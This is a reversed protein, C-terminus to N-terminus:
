LAIRYTNGSGDVLVIASADPLISRLKLDLEPNVMSGENFFVSGIFIGKPNDSLTMPLSKLRGLYDEMSQGELSDALEKSGANSSEEQQKPQAVQRVLGPDPLEAIPEIKLGLPDFLYQLLALIAVVIVVPLLLILLRKKGRKAPQATKQAVPEVSEEEAAEVPVTEEKGTEEEPPLGLEEPTAPSSEIERPAAPPAEAGEVSDGAPATGTGLASEPEPEPEPEPEIPVAKPTPIPPEKKELRPDREPRPATLHPSLPTLIQKLKLKQPGAEEPPSEGTEAEGKVPEVPTNERPAEDGRPSLLLKKRPPPNEPDSPNPTSPEAM